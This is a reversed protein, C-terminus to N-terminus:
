QTVLTVMASSVITGAKAAPMGPIHVLSATITFDASGTSGDVNKYYTTGPTIDISGGGSDPTGFLFVEAGEATGTNQMSGNPATSTGATFDFKLGPRTVSGPCGTVHIIKQKGQPEISGDKIEISGFDVPNDFDSSSLQCTGETLNASINLTNSGDANAVSSFAAMSVVFLCLSKKKFYRM